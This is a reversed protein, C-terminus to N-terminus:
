QSVAKRLDRAQAAKKFAEIMAPTLEPCDDEYTVPLKEAEELMQIQHETLRMEPTLTRIVMTKPDYEEVMALHGNSNVKYTANRKIQKMNRVAKRKAM